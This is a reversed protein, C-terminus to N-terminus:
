GILTDLIATMLIWASVALVIWRVAVPTDEILDSIWQNGTPPEAREPAVAMGGVTARQQKATTAFIFGALSGAVAFTAVLSGKLFSIGAIASGWTMSQEPVLASGLEFGFCLLLFGPGFIMLASCIRRLYIRLLEERDADPVEYGTSGLYFILRGDAMRSFHRDISHRMATPSRYVRWAGVFVALMSLGLLLLDFCGLLWWRRSNTLRTRGLIAAEFSPDIALAADYDRIAGDYDFLWGDAYGRCTLALPNKPDIDIAKDCDDWARRYNGKGMLANGRLAFADSNKPDLRIAEDLDPVASDFQGRMVYTAGRELYNRSDRPGLKIAQDADALAADLKGMRYELHSRCRAAEASLPALGVATDCDNLARQYDDKGEYASCRQIWLQSDSPDIKIADSFRAIALDYDHHELATNGQMLLDDKASGAADPLRFLFLAACIFVLKSATCIKL